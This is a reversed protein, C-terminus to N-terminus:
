EVAQPKVGVALLVAVTRITESALSVANGPARGPRGRTTAPPLKALIKDDAVPRSRASLAM